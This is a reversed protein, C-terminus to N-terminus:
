VTKITQELTLYLLLTLLAYQTLGSYFPFINISDLLYIHEDTM